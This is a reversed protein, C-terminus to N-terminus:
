IGTVFEFARSDITWNYEYSFLYFILGISNPIGHFFFHCRPTKPYAIPRLSLLCTPPWLYIDCLGLSWCQIYIHVRNEERQLVILNIKYFNLKFLARAGYFLLRAHSARDRHTHTTASFIWNDPNQKFQVHLNKLGETVIIIGKFLIFCISSLAGTILLRTSRAFTRGDRQGNM